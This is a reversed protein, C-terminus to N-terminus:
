RRCGKAIGFSIGVVIEVANGAVNRGPNRGWCGKRCSSGEHGGARVVGGDVALEAGAGGGVQGAGDVGLAFVQQLHGRDGALVRVRAHQVQATAAPVHTKVHRRFHRMHGGVVQRLLHQVDDGGFGGLAPEGIQHDTLALGLVQREAVGFEVLHHRAIGRVMPLVGAAAQALSEAHELRAANGDKGVHHRRTFRQQVGPQLGDFHQAVGRV